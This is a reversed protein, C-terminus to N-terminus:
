NRYYGGSRRKLILGPEDLANGLQHGIGQEIGIKGGSVTLWDNRRVGGKGDPDPLSKGGDAAFASASMFVSMACVMAISLRSRRLSNLM